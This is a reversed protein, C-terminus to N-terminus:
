FALASRDPSLLSLGSANLIFGTPSFRQTFCHRNDIPITVMAPLRAFMATSTIAHRAPRMRTSKHSGGALVDSTLIPWSATFRHFWACRHTPELKRPALLPPH